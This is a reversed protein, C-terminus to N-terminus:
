DEANAAAVILGGLNVFLANLRSFNSVGNSNAAVAATPIALVSATNSSHNISASSGSFAPAHAPASSSQSKPSSPEVVTSISSTTATKSTTEPTWTTTPEPTWTTTPEPTWTTTTTPEPTWTTVPEPKWTTTPEPTWTTTTTPEPTWTTAPEPTWTTTPEPKWMSTTVPKLINAVKWTTTPEPTWTTTEKTTTRAVWKSTTPTGDGGGGDSNFSWEGYIIGADESAFYRFLGRSLDLGGWPCGPCQDMVKATATKGGYTMTITKFCNPGPYGSGYQPTNMAVIFDNETNHQGCAGLGVDYFSWRSSSFRKYVHMDGSARKSLDHHRNLHINGHGGEAVAALPVALSLLSLSSLKM